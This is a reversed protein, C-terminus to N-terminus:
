SVLFTASIIFDEATPSRVQIYGNTRVRFEKVTSSGGICVGQYEVCPRNGTTLLAVNTWGSAASTRTFAARIQRVNGCKYVSGGVDTTGSSFSIASSVATPAVVLDTFTATGNVTIKWKTNGSASCVDQLYVYNANSSNGIYLAGGSAGIRAGSAMEGGALPLLKGGQRADLAYGATTTTLNNQVCNGGLANFYGYTFPLSSSGINNSAMGAGAPVVYMNRVTGKNYYIAIGALINSTAENSTLLSVRNSNNTLSINSYQVSIGAVSDVDTFLNPPPEGAPYVDSLLQIQFAKTGKFNSIARVGYEDFTWIGCEMKKNTSSISFNTAQVDLVGGSILKIWKGGSVTIGDDTIDVGSKVTYKNAILGGTEYSDAISQSLEARITNGTCEYVDECGGNWQLTRAFVPLDFTNGDLDEVEIIDGTEVMWNGMIDVNIPTYAGFATFRALIDTIVTTLDASGTNILIPNDVIQYYTTYTGVPYVFGTFGDDYTCAVRIAQIVPATAEDISINFYKNGDVSYASTQDTFWALKVNGSADFKAYCGNAEAIYALLQRCTMGGNFPSESFSLAMSDAIENGASYSLGLYTCLGHYINALTIPYTIGDVYDDALVDFLQMRDYATFEITETRITREPKKGKFYGVTVWNTVGAIDVGFDLRFEETWDFGTFVNSNILNVVVESSVAMGMTLDTEGNQIQTLRIGGEMTIDDDDLTINQVPFVLRAHTSNGGLVAANYDALTTGVPPTLM